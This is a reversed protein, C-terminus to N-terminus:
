IYSFLQTLIFYLLMPCAVSAISKFVSLKHLFYVSYVIWLYYLIFGINIVVLANKFLMNQQVQEIPLGKPIGAMYVFLVVVYTIAIAGFGYGSFFLFSKFDSTGDFLLATWHSVLSLIVWVIIASLVFVLFFVVNFVVLAKQELGFSKLNMMSIFFRAQLLAYLVVVFSPLFWDQRKAEIDRNEKEIQM